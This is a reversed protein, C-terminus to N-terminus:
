AGLLWMGWPQRPTRLRYRAHTNLLLRWEVHNADTYEQIPLFKGQNTFWMTLQAKKTSLIILIRIGSWKKNGWAL